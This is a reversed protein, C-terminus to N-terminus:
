IRWLNLLQKAASRSVPIKTESKHTLKLNYAGNFWPVIEQVYTLNVLYSRHPRFFNFPKLKAELQQLTMRSTYVQEATHIHVARDHRVIYYISSPDLVVFREGDDLLLKAYPIDALPSDGGAHRRNNHEGIEEAFASPAPDGGKGHHIQKRIREVAEHLREESYPKLLYDVANLGFAEVAHEDYATTFIIFPPAPYESLKKAARMGDIKPMQIDMFVVDPKMQEYMALLDKGNSATGCVTLDDYESLMYTLEERALKEDEAIMIKIAM